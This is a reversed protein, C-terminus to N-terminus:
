PKVTLSWGCGCTCRITVSSNGYVTRRIKRGRPCVLEIQQKTTM